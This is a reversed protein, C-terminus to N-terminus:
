KKPAELLKAASLKLLSLGNSKVEDITPIGGLLELADSALMGFWLKEMMRSEIESLEEAAQRHASDLRDYAVRLTGCAKKVRRTGRNTYEYEYGINEDFDVDTFAELQAKLDTLEQEKREIQQRLRAVGTKREWIRRMEARKDVVANNISQRLNAFRGKILEEAKKRETVSIPMDKRKQDKPREATKGM